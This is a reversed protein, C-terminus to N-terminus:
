AGPEFIFALICFIISAILLAYVLLPRKSPPLTPDRFVVSDISNSGIKGVWVVGAAALVCGLVMLDHVTPM